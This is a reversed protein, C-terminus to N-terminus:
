ARTTFTLAGAQNYDYWVAPIRWTAILFSYKLSIMYLDAAAELPTNRGGTFFQGLITLDLNKSVSWNISPSFFLAEERPYYIGTLSANLLPHILYSLQVAAQYRTFSPNDATIGTGLSQYNRTGGNRNYLLETIVFLGNVFMYDLSVAVIVNTSRTDDENQKDLDRFLMAEGKFGAGGLNGAWGGGVALRDRYYASIIQVDYGKFNFGYLGAAVTQRRQRGPSIALEVRSGLGTFRQIRLSDSGPREPYDIAYVSYINFIDNPNTIMNVGWNVRQRGARILWDSKVWELYLRDAITHLLLNRQNVLTASLDVLGPDRRLERVYDPSTRVLDGSFLRTRLGGHFFLDSSVDWRLNLRNHLRYEHLEKKNTNASSPVNFQLLSGQLYGGIDTNQVALAPGGGWLLLVLTLFFSRNGRM